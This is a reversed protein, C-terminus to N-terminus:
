TLLIFLVCPSIEFAQCSVLFCIIPWDRRGAKLHTDEPVILWCLNWGFSCSLLFLFFDFLNANRWGADMCKIGPDGEFIGPGFRNSWEVRRPAM